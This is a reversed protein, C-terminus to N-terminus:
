FNTEENAENYNPIVTNQLFAPSSAVATEGGNSGRM